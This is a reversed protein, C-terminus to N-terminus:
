GIHYLDIPGDIRDDILKMVKRVIVLTNNERALDHRCTGALIRQGRSGFAHNSWNSHVRLVNETEVELQINSTIRVTRDLPFSAFSDGSEIRFIRDRIEGKGTLYLLSLETAPDSTLEEESAWAPMWIVADDDFLNLWDDWQRKDLYSAEKLLFATVEDLPNM